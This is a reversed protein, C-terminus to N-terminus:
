ASEGRDITHGAQELAAIALQTDRESVLLYDTGFTSVAFISIGVEALPAALSALVGTQSFALPGKVCFLRRAGEAQADAPIYGDECVLSLEERTRTLSCFSSKLAWSPVAANPALRCIAYRGPLLSLNFTPKM